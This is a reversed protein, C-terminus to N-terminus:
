YYYEELQQEIFVRGNTFDVCLFTPVYQEGQKIYDDCVRGIESFLHQITYEQINAFRKKYAQYGKCIWAVIRDVNYEAEVMRRFDYEDLEDDYDNDYEEMAEVLGDRVTNRISQVLDKDKLTNNCEDNVFTCQEHYASTALSNIDSKIDDLTTQHYKSSWGYAIRGAIIGGLAMLEDTFADYHPEITHELIDHACQLGSIAPEFYDRNNDIVLGIEGYEEHERLKISYKKM